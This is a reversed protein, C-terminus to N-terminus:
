GIKELDLKLKAVLNRFESSTYKLTVSELQTKDGTPTAKSFSFIMCCLCEQGNTEVHSLDQYYKKGESSTGIYTQGSKLSNSWALSLDSVTIDNWNRSSIFELAGIMRKEDSCTAHTNESTCYQTIFCMAFVVLLLRVMPM